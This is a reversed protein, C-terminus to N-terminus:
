AILVMPILSAVSSESILIQELPSHSSDQILYGDDVSGHDAM